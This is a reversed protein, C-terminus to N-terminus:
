RTVNNACYITATGGVVYLGFRLPLVLGSRRRKIGGKTSLIYVNAVGCKETLLVNCFTGNPVLARERENKDKKDKKEKKFLPQDNTAQHNDTPQEDTLAKTSADAASYEDKQYKQRNIV